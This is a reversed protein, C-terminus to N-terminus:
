EESSNLQGDIALNCSLRDLHPCEEIWHNIDPYQKSAYVFWSEVLLYDECPTGEGKFEPNTKSQWCVKYM